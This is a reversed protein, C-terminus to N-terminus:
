LGYREHAVKLVQLYENYLHKIPEAISLLRQTQVLWLCFRSALSWCYHQYPTYDDGKHDSFEKSNQSLEPIQSAQYPILNPLNLDSLKCFAADDICLYHLVFGEGHDSHKMLSDYLALGTNLYSSSDTLTCLNKMHDESPTASPTATMLVCPIQM